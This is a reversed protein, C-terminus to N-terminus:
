IKKTSVIYHINKSKKEESSRILHSGHQMKKKNHRAGYLKKGM